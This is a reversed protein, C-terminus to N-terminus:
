FLSAVMQISRETAVAACGPDFTGSIRYAL